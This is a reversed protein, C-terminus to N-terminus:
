PRSRDIEFIALDAGATVVRIGDVAVDTRWGYDTEDPREVQWEDAERNGFAIIGKDGVAVLGDDGRAVAFLHERTPSPLAKWSSGLDTSRLVHGDLGVAVALGNTDLLVGTLSVDLPSEADIWTGGRDTSIRIWGFEGVVIVREGLVAVDNWAVDEVQATQTWTRGYDLSRLVLGFEGVAWAEGGPAVRVRLLKLGEAEVVKVAEWHVGGDETRLVLGDNGVVVARLGDWAAIAQLHADTPSEQLSWGGGGDESRLIKGGSGVAWLTDPAPAVLGYFSDRAAIVPHELRPLEPEVTVFFAAYLLGGIISPPALVAALGAFWRRRTTAIPALRADVDMKM